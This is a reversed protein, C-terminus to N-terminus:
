HGSGSSLLSECCTAHGLRTATTVVGLCIALMGAVVAFGQAYPGVGDLRTNPIGESAFFLASATFVVLGVAVVVPGVLVGSDAAAFGTSGAMWIGAIVGSLGAFLLAYAAARMRRRRASSTNTNRAEENAERRYLLSIFDRLTQRWFTPWSSAGEERPRVCCSLTFHVMWVAVAYLAGEVTPVYDGVTRLLDWNGAQEAANEARAM